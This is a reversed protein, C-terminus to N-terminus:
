SERGQRGLGFVPNIAYTGGIGHRILEATIPLNEPRYEVDMLSANVVRTDGCMSIGYGGHIHGCVVLEPGYDHIWSTLSPSGLYGGEWDGYGHPPGHSILVDIDAPIAAYKEALEHEELNFAWDSFRRQWPSGWFRLGEFVYQQDVLMTWPIGADVREPAKQGIFDHNGWTAITKRVPQRSLWDKFTTSLWCAQHYVRHDTVPCIDGAIVLVDCPKIEPLYGHLDSILTMKM